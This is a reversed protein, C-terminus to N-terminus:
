ICLFLYDLYSMVPNFVGVPLPAVLQSKVLTPSSKVEPAVSFSDLLDGSRCEFGPGRTQRGSWEAM